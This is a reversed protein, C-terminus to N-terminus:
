KDYVGRDLRSLLSGNHSAHQKLIDRNINDPHLLTTEINEPTRGELFWPDNLTKKEYDEEFEQIESGNTTHLLKYTDTINTKNSFNYQKDCIPARFYNMPQRITYEDLFSSYAGNLKPAPGRTVKNYNNNSFTNSVIGRNELLMSDHCVEYVRTDPIDGRYGENIQLIIYVLIILVWLIYM